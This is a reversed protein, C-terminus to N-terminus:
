GEQNPTVRQAQGECKKLWGYVDAHTFYFLWAKRIDCPKAQKHNMAAIAVRQACRWAQRKSVKVPRVFCNTPAYIDM